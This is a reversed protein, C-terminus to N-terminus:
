KKIIANLIEERETDTLNLWDELFAWQRNKATFCRRKTKFNGCCIGTSKINLLRDVAAISEFIEQTNLCIVKKCNNRKQLSGKIYGKSLYLDLEDPNIYKNKGVDPHYVSIKNKNIHEHTKFYEIATRSLHMREEETIEHPTYKGELKNKEKTRKIKNIIEIPVTKGKHALSNKLKSEASHKLNSGRIWGESLYSDLDEKKILTREKTNPNHVWVRGLNNKQCSSKKSRERNYIEKFKALTDYDIIELAEDLNSYRGERGTIVRNAAFSAQRKFKTDICLALYIHAKIHDAYSLNVINSPSDDCSIKKYKFYFKPIIHHRETKFKEMKTNLNISILDVYKTLYINDICLELDILYNKELM